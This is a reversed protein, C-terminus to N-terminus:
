NASCRMQLAHATPELGVEPEIEVALRVVRHRELEVAIRLRDVVGELADLALDDRVLRRAGDGRLGERM